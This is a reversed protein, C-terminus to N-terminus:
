LVVAIVRALSSSPASIECICRMSAEALSRVLPVEERCREEPGAGIDRPLESCVVGAHILAFRRRIGTYCREFSERANANVLSGRLHNNTKGPIALERVVALLRLNRWSTCLLPNSVSHIVASEGVRELSYLHTTNAHNRKHSPPGTGLELIVSTSQTHTKHDAPLTRILMARNCPTILM